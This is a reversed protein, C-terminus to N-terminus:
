SRRKAPEGVELEQRKEVVDLAQEFLALAAKKVEAVESKRTPWRQDRLQDDLGLEFMRQLEAREGASFTVAM